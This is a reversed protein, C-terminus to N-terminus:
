NKENKLYSNFAVMPDTASPPLLIDVVIEDQDTSVRVTPKPQGSLWWIQLSVVNRPEANSWVDIIYPLGISTLGSVSFKKSKKNGSYSLLSSTSQRRSKKNSSIVWNRSCFRTSKFGTQKTLITYHDNCEYEDEKEMTLSLMDNTLESSYSYAYDKDSLNESENVSKLRYSSLPSLGGNVVNYCTFLILNSLPFRIYVFLFYKCLGAACNWVQTNFTKRSIGLAWNFTAYVYKQFQPHKLCTAKQQWVMVVVM